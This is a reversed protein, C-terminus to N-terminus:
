CRADLFTVEALQLSFDSEAAHGGDWGVRRDRGVKCLDVFTTAPLVKFGSAYVYDTRVRFRFLAHLRRAAVNGANQWGFIRYLRVRLHGFRHGLPVFDMLPWSGVLSPWSKGDHMGGM